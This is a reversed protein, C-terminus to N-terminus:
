EEVMTGIYYFGKAEDLHVNVLQGILSPDGPFHVLVNNRLRGTLYGEEHDDVSEVLVEMTQGKHRACREASIEQVEKLLRDFRDKVVKPDLQEWKAAPTGTRPSYIFTFVSDYKVDKVVELTELFDEETETPFGVIIDTTLSVDPIREKIKNALEMYRERDYSRNMKKLVKSSGAQLPLHIHKCIKKSKAIFDILDDPFDKPHPTMFRIRELGDIKEIEELLSTFTIGELDKGYSNVNQGLLMIEVVGNEVLRKIESIIDEPKRSRERGRVYPVICYTCFKDCGYSINVGCKFPYKRISPLDEVVGEPKDWVDIYLKHKQKHSSLVAFLLESLMFINHTGFILDVFSYSKRIKAVVSEEQMMCGCLGIIMQPNKKKYKQLHGLRGYVKLNANERVTCTNMLIFDADESETEEYGIANLVGLLKESDKANMQCGFTMINVKLKRGLIQEREFVLRRCKEIFYYQRDPEVKPAEGEISIITQPDLYDASNNERFYKEGGIRRIKKSAEQISAKANFNSQTSM